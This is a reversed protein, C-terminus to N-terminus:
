AIQKTHIRLMARNAAYRWIERGEGFPRVEYTRGDWTIVDGEAPTIATELLILDATRIIFDVAHAIVLLGNAQLAEHKSEGITFSLGTASDGGRAYDVTESAAGKLRAALRAAATQMRNAM